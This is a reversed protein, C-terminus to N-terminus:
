DPDNCPFLSEMQLRYASLSRKKGAAVQRIIEDHQVYEENPWDLLM